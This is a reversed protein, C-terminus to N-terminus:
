NKSVKINDIIVNGRGLIAIIFYCDDANPCTFEQKFHYIENVNELPSAFDITQSYYKEGTSPDKKNLSRIFTYCHGEITPNSVLYIKDAKKYDFELTYKQNAELKIYKNNSYSFEYFDNKDQYKYTIEDIKSSLSYSGDIVESIDRTLHGWRNFGYTFTSDNLVRNEFDETYNFGKKDDYARVNHNFGVNKGKVIIGKPQEVLNINDLYIGGSNKIGIALKLDEGTNPTVFTFSKNSSKMDNRDYWEGIPMVEKGDKYILRAYFYSGVSAKDTKIDFNLTYAANNKLTAKSTLCDVKNHTDTSEFYGISSYNIYENNDKFVEKQISPNVDYRSIGGEFTELNGKFENIKINSVDIKNKYVGTGLIEVNYSGSQPTSFTVTKTTKTESVDQWNILTIKEENNVLRVEFGNDDGMKYDNKLSVSPIYDFTLEYQTSGVLNIDELKDIKEYLPTEIDDYNGLSIEGLPYVMNNYSGVQGLRIAPQGNEDGIFAALTYKGDALGLPLAFDIFLNVIEGNLLQRLDFTNEFTKSVIHGSYDLLMLGFKYNPLSFRGVGSNSLKIMTKITSGSTAGSPFIAKNVSFRYGMKSAGRDFVEEYGSEVIRVVETNLWGLVTSYNCRSKFLLEDTAELPTFSGSQAGGPLYDDFSTFFEAANVAHKGSRIVDNLAREDYRIDTIGYGAMGDRRYGVNPIKIAYDFASNALYKEYTTRSGIIASTGDENAGQIDYSCSLFLTKGEEAFAEAYKDVIYALGEQREQMTKFSHGSHWEGYMGYGRIDITNVSKNHLYKASLEQMFREFKERYIPNTTDFVLANSKGGGYDYYQIDVGYKTNLWRPAGYYVEPLSLSDTCIRLNIQKGKSTWYSITEDVLSWDFVGEEREIFDWSTQIGVSDAEPIDGDHGLNMKGLETQEELTNWGMGVNHLSGDVKTPYSVQYGSPIKDVPIDAPNEKSCGTLVLVSSALLLSSKAIKKM